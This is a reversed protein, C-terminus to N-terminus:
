IKIKFLGLLTYTGYQSIISAYGYIGNVKPKVLNSYKATVFGIENEPDSISLTGDTQCYSRRDYVNVFCRLIRDIITGKTDFATIIMKEKMSNLRDELKSLLVPIDKFIQYNFGYTDCIQRIPKDKKYDTIFDNMMMLLSIPEGESTAYNFKDEVILDNTRYKCTAILTTIWLIEVHVKMRFAYLILMGIDIDCHLGVIFAGQQTITDGAILMKKYLSQLTSTINTVPDIMSALIEITKSVSGIYNVLTLVSRDLDVRLIEPLKEDIFNKEYEAKTYVHYCKGPKTRGVRGCRQKVSFKNVWSKKAYFINKFRNLIPENVTGTDIVITMNDITLGTEAINTAFILRRTYGQQKYFHADTALKNKEDSQGSYLSGIYIRKNENQDPKVMVIKQDSEIYVKESDLSDLKEFYNIYRNIESKTPLFVLIDGSDCKLSNIILKKTEAEQDYKKSLLFSSVVDYTKTKIDIYDIKHPSFYKIIKPIDITATMLVYKTSKDSFIKQKILALICDINTNREHLEDIIIIDYHTGALMAQLVIADVATTILTKDNATVKLGYKYGVYPPDNDTLDLQKAMFKAAEITSIIRPESMLIKGNWKLYQELLILPLRISKGSGTGSKILIIDNTKLKEILEAKINNIPLNSLRKKLYYYEGTHRRGTLPSIGSESSTSLVEIEEKIFILLRICSTYVLADPNLFSENNTIRDERVVYGRKQMAKILKDTDFLHEKIDLATKSGSVDITVNDNKIKVKILDTNFKSANKKLLKGDITILAFCHNTCKTVADALLNIDNFYTLSFMATVADTKITPVYSLFDTKQLSLNINKSEGLRKLLDNYNDPNPEIAIVKMIGNKIWKGIDGGKGSGIDTISSVSIAQYIYNKERNLYKFMLKLDQCSLTEFSVSEIYNHYTSDITMLANPNDKDSRIRVAELGITNGATVFRFEVIKNTYKKKDTAKWYIKRKILFFDEYKNGNRYLTKGQSYLLDITLNDKEKWKFAHISKPIEGLTITETFVLGDQKIKKQGYCEKIKEIAEEATSWFYFDKTKINPTDVHVLRKSLENKVKGDYYYVDFIYYIDDVMEGDFIGIIGFFPNKVTFEHFSSSVGPIVVYLSKGNSYMIMRTGDAKISVCLKQMQDRTMMATSLATPRSFFAPKLEPIEANFLLKTIEKISM